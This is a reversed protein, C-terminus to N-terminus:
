VAPGSFNILFTSFCFLHLNTTAYLVFTIADRSCVYKLRFDEYFM